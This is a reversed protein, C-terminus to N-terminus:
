KEDSDESRLNGLRLLYWGLLICVMGHCIAHEIPAWTPTWSMVVALAFCGLGVLFFGGWYRIAFAFYAVGNILNVIRYLSYRFERLDIQGEPPRLVVAILLTSLWLAFIMAITHYDGTKLNEKRLFIWMTFGYILLHLIIFSLYLLPQENTAILRAFILNFVLINCGNILNIWGWDTVNVFQQQLIKRIGSVWFGPLQANPKHGDAYRQLDDALEAASSYRDSPQEQLCKLCIAAMDSDVSPNLRKPNLPKCAKAQLFVDALNNGRYPPQGTLLEYLIAGIGFVDAAPTLNKSGKAQEPPIYQFTGLVAKTHTEDFEEDLRKALGFDTVMPEGDETMLINHPKLDRHLITRQHAHHVAGAVKALITAIQKPHNRLTDIQEKLTNGTILKMSFFHQGDMEGFQYIKVINPHDELAALVDAELKFRRLWDQRDKENLGGIRDQRIVKLAVIRTPSLQRACYVTGMGGEQLQGLIMYGPIQPVVKATSLFSKRVELLPKLEEAVQPHRALFAERNPPQGAECAMEYEALAEALLDPDSKHPVTESNSM